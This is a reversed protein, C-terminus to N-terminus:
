QLVAGQAANKYFEATRQIISRFEAPNRLKPTIGFNSMVPQVQPSDIALKYADFLAQVVAPDMGKPGVIGYFTPSYVQVGLELMTPVDPYKAAREESLMVLLRLRGDAVMQTWEPTLAVFDIDGAMMAMIAEPGNKYPVHTWETGTIRGINHMALHHASGVGGTGFKVSGPSAKAAALLTKFDKWRSDARVVVAPPSDGFMIIPTVDTTVDYGTPRLFQNVVAGVLMVGLSYGDPKERTLQLLAVSGAAGPKNEVVIDTKLAERAVSSTARALGDAAGGPAFGATVKIPRSFVPAAIATLPGVAVLGTALVVQRRKM